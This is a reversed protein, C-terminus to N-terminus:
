KSLKEIAKLEAEAVKVAAQAQAIEIKSAGSAKLM